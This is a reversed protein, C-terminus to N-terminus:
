MQTAVKAQWSCAFRTSPAKRLHHFLPPSPPIRVGPRTEVVVSKSDTVNPWEAVEGLFSLLFTTNRHSPLSRSTEGFSEAVTEAAAWLAGAGSIGEPCSRQLRWRRATASRRGSRRFFSLLSTTDNRKPLSRSTEGFSEAVTEAAAWLAGAGSIGEPCSRQLRWRRATASRRGSRRFLQALFHHQPPKALKSKNRRIIRGSNGGSGLPCGRRFDRRSLEKPTAM